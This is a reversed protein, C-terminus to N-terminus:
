SFRHLSIRYFPYFRCFVSGPRQDPPSFGAGQAVAPLWLVPLDLLSGYLIISAAAVVFIEHRGFFISACAIILIFLFSFHSAIGGSMYILLTAILLDWAIQVQVLWKIKQVRFLLFASVLAQFFSVGFLFYLLALVPHLSEVGGRLHYVITGGLFLTIVLVRCFLYWIIQNHSFTETHVHTSRVTM